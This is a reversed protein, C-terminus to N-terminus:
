RQGVDRLYEKTEDKTLTRFVVRNPLEIVPINYKIACAIESGVGAGISGDPFSRFALVHCQKVEELFVEFGKEKYAYEIISNNPNVVKYGLKELLKVDRTEQCTDYLSLPHAYYCKDKKPKMMFM